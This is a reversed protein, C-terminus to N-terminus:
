NGMKTYLLALSNLSSAYAPHKEGLLKKRLAVAQLYLAEAKAYVGMKSYMAAVNSLSQAYDPHEEGLVQKRLVLCKQFHTEAKAYDGIEYYSSALRDLSNAYSPHQEGLVQARLALEQQALPLLDRHKGSRFLRDIRQSLEATRRLQGRQEATRRSRQETDSLALRADTVRWHDTGDVQQRVALVEQRARRAAAWEERREQLQALYELLPVLSERRKDFVQRALALAKEAAAVAEVLKGERSLKQSEGWERNVDKLKQKQEENLPPRPSDATAVNAPFVRLGLILLCTGLCYHWQPFALHSCM